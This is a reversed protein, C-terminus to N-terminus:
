YKYIYISINEPFIIIKMKFGICAMWNKKEKSRVM